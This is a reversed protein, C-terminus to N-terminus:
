SLYLSFNCEECLYSLKDFKSSSLTMIDHCRPCEIEHEIEKLETNTRAEIENTEEVRLPDSHTQLTAKKRM